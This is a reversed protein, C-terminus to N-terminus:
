RRREEDDVQRKLEEFEIDIIEDRNPAQAPPAPGTEPPQRPDITHRRSGQGSSWTFVQVGGESGTTSVGRPRRLFFYWIVIALPILLVLAFGLRVALGVLGHFFWGILMGVILGAVFGNRLGRLQSFGFTDTSPPQQM